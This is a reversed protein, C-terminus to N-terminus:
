HDIIQTGPPVIIVKKVGAKGTMRSGEGPVGGDAKIYMRRQFHSLTHTNNDCESGSTVVKEVMEVM